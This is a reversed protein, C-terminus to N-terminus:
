RRDPTAELRGTPRQGPHLQADVRGARDGREALRTLDQDAALLDGALVECIGRFAVVGTPEVASIEPEDVVVAVQENDPPGVVHDDAPALVEGGGLDFVYQELM